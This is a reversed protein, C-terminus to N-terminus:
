PSRSPSDPRRASRRWARSWTAVPSRFSASWLASEAQHIADAAAELDVWTDAPLQLAHSGGASTLAQAGDLGVSGLLRRLKSVIANLGAETAAPPEQPWLVDVLESRSVPRGRECALYAFALRGQRGPFAGQEVLRDGAELCMRGALYVRLQAM